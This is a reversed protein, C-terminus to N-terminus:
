EGKIFLGRLHPGDSKYAGAGGEKCRGHSWGLWIRKVPVLGKFDWGWTGEDLCPEDGPLFKGGGVWGGSYNGADTLRAYWAVRQPRGSRFLRRGRSGEGEAPM